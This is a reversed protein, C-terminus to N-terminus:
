KILTMKKVDMFTAGSEGAVEIRYFYVGSAASGADWSVTYIGAPRNERNALLAVQQGISNFVSVTVKGSEPLQYQINTAPNFPNPYNQELSFAEPLNLEDMTSTAVQNAAETLDIENLKLDTIDFDGPSGAFSEDFHFRLHVLDGMTVSPEVGAVAATVTGDEARIRDSWETTETTGILEVSTFRTDDYDLSIQGSYLPLAGKSQIILDFSADSIQTNLEFLDEPAFSPAKGAGPFGGIAGVVYQLVNSADFATIDGDGTVDAATQQSEALELDGVVFQLILSGDFATVSGEESVDGLLVGSRSVQWPEYEVRNSGSVLIQNGQGGLNPDTNSDDAVFPGTSDGWYNNIATVDRFAYLAADDNNYFNNLHINPDDSDNQVRFGYRNSHIDSNRITPKAGDESFIGYTANSVFSSDVLIESNQDFFLNTNAYRVIVHKVLSQSSSSGYFLLERWNGRSPATDTSDRNTDGAYTDDLLSTFIIKSDASGEAVLSGEIRFSDNNSGRGLKVVTGPAINVSDGSNIYTTGTIPIYAPNTYSSPWSYGLNGNLPLNNNSYIGIADAYTHDTFTNGDYFNGDANTTGDRSIEGMVAIPLNNNEFTNDEIFARTSIIGTGSTHGSITSGSIELAEDSEIGSIRAYIGNGANNLIENFQMSTPQTSREIIVGNSNNEIVSNTIETFSAGDDNDDAFLGAYSNNSGGNNQIVSKRLIARTGFGNSSRDRIWVGHRSSNTVTLSDFEVASEEQFVGYLSANDLWLNKFISSYEVQSSSSTGLELNVRAYRVYVNALRTDASGNNRLHLGGWNGRSPSTEDDVQAINGGYDHDFLSTFVIPDQESGEAILKGEVRFQTNNNVLEPATKITVGPDIVLSDGSNVANGISALLYSSNNFAEPMTASLTDSLNSSYIAISNNYTNDVFENGDVGNEDVFIHGLRNWAAVGFRNGEFRNDIFVAKSSRVGSQGNNAFTNGFLSIDQRQRNSNLSVGHYVNNRIQNAGFITVATASEIVVGNANNEIVSNTVSGFTAGDDNNDAYLGAYSGNSGGNNSILSNNIEVVSVTGNSSRDRLWIGNRSSNTVTINDFSVLSEEIFIGYFEANDILINSFTNSYDVTNSSSTGMELNYRGYRINVHDFSSNRTGNNRLHIGGWDGRSPSTTSGEPAINGGYDHDYLSTLTIPNEQTGQAIVQGEFRLATNSNTISPATKITVGAEITVVSGSASANGSSALVYTPNPLAEPVTASITGRLNEAYLAVGGYTNNSFTNSDVDSDDTYSLSMNQWTGVGFRNGDFANDIVRASNTLLGSQGNNAFSNGRFIIDATSMGHYLRVGHSSNNSITNNEYLQPGSDAYEAVVGIGSNGSIESNALQEIRTKTRSGGGNIYIGHDGNNNSTFGDLNVPANSEASLFYLGTNGNLSTEGGTMNLSSERFYFGNRSNSISNVNSWGSQSVESYIGNGNNNNVYLDSLSATNDFYLVGDNSNSSGYRFVSHSLQSGAGFFEIQGWNGPGPTSADGDGNSDGGAADDRTSTFIILSNGTGNSSLVGNVTMSIGSGFKVITGPEVTLTNGATVTINSSVLYVNGSEWTTNSSINSTVGIVPLDMGSGDRWPTYNINSTIADGNGTPNSAVTPGLPSGWYNFRADLVDGGLSEIGWTSNGAINNDRITPQSSGVEQLQIGIDNAKIESNTIEPRGNNEILIGVGNTDILSENIVAQSNIPIRIGGATNRYIESQTVSFNLSLDAFIGFGTNDYFKSNSIDSSSARLNIGHEGSNRFVSNSISVPFADTTFFIMGSRSAGAGYEFTTYDIVSGADTTNRFEVSGWDGPSEGTSTFIIGDTDSGASALAGDVLLSAGSGMIITVGPDITLTNGATVTVTQSVTVPSDAAAWTTNTTIDSDVTLQALATSTLLFLSLLLTISLIRKTM